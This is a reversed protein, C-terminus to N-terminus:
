KIMFTVSVDSTLNQDGVPINAETSAKDAVGSARASMYMPYVPSGSDSYTLVRGLSVGLADALKQANLRADVIAAQQAEIKLKSPDDFVFSIGTPKVGFQGVGTLLRGIRPDNQKVNRIKVEVTQTTTYGVVVSNTVPSCAISSPAISSEAVATKSSKTKSSAAPASASVACPASKNEYKEYTSYYSNSIDAAKIGQKKLYEIAANSKVAVASQSSAVDKGDETVTWSFSALDPTATIQAHGAVTISRSLESPDSGITPYTKVENIIKVLLFLALLSLVAIGAVRLYVGLEGDLVAISNKEKAM